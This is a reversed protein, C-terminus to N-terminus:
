ISDGAAHDTAELVTFSLGAKALEQAAAMGAQGQSSVWLLISISQSHGAGVVLVDDAATRLAKACSFGLM